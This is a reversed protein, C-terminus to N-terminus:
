EKSEKYNDRIHSIINDTFNSQKNMALLEDRLGYDECAELKAEFSCHESALWEPDIREYGTVLIGKVPENTEATLPRHLCDIYEVGTKTDFGYQWLLNDVEKKNNRQMISIAGPVKALDLFSLSRPNGSM